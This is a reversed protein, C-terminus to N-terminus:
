DHVDGGEMLRVFYEELDRQRVALELVTQDAARLVSSVAEVDYAGSVELARDRRATFALQPFARELAVLAADPDTTRVVLADACEARVEEATMERVMRGDRIVGFRTAMRDLQDLVHSSVVITVGRTRNLEVLLSRMQRTGEPDLGNFPEDLLLVDPSTVLALAIGLRQKMGLSFGRVRKGAAGSLGVTELLEECRARAGVVGCALAKSMLNQYATLGPVVGPGEILADIAHGTEAATSRPGVPRGFLRIEGDTPSTLGCVMKMTTSKGAGNRGVFGYIEGRPVHLDLADVACHRRYRKTLGRAEIAYGAAM